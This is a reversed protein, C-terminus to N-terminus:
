QNKKTPPFSVDRTAEAMERLAQDLAEKDKGASRVVPAGISFDITANDQIPLEMKESVRGSRRPAVPPPIIISQDLPPPTITPTAFVPEPLPPPPIEPPPANRLRELRQRSFGPSQTNAPRITVYYFGALAAILVAAWIIRSKM